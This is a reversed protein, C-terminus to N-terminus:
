KNVNVIVNSSHIAGAYKIAIQILPAERAERAAQSQQSVPLSYIYYGRQIINALLDAQNGFTTPSTWAGPALFQNTVAQECVQRYAGKLVAVGDETQPQKTSSQALANFGAVALDGVMWQLNYVDDFFGNAGSTLLKSVGRISVYVDAGAAKCKNYLTQNMSPDPQVGILEKLQMTQTTNSGLFNTSLGRGAYSAMEVLADLDNDSGYFLGRTQNFNGTRLLDIMGGVEVSAPDRSSIFAIKNLAQVVAAAALVDAQTLIRSAFLGFYQVLDKTRTIATAFTEGVTVTAVPLTIAVAGATQLSNAGVVLLAAPGYYGDMSVSFGAAISGTVVATELGVIARVKTQIQAATDNWNIAASTSAGLSLTFTGSAAVGSPTLSQVPTVLPLIVLYGQNALINPQQSFIALAQKYTVSDTGFDTAVETPEVYIKYGADGFSEAYPEATFLGINSTNYRGIGAGPASVSINIVNSLQLDM